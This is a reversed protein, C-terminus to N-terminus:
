TSLEKGSPITTDEDVGTGTPINLRQMRYRLAHRSIKLHEATKTLSFRFKDLTSSILERELNEMIEDISQGGTVHQTEEKTRLRTELHFDPLNRPQLVASTELIVAREIANRLERVNGPWHHAILKQQAETSLSTIHKGM